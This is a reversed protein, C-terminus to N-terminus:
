KKEAPLGYPGPKPAPGQLGSPDYPGPKPAPGQLGSTDYPGPKPAPEPTPAGPKQTAATEEPPAPAAQNRPPYLGAAPYGASDLLADFQSPEFGTQVLRGVVLTPLQEAGSVSKLKKVTDENWVQVEEFPISRKNLAARALECPEKCNPSTYLTVPFDKQVRAIEFPVQQARAAGTALLLAAGAVTLFVASFVRLIM